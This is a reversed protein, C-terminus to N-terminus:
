RVIRKMAHPVKYNSIQQNIQTKNDEEVIIYFSHPFHGNKNKTKNVLKDGACLETGVM